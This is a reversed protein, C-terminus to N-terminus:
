SAAYNAGKEINPKVTGDAACAAASTRETPIMIDCHPATTLGFSSKQGDPPLRQRGEKKAKEEQL